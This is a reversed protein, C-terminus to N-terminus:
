KLGGMFENQMYNILEEAGTLGRKNQLISRIGKIWEKGRIKCNNKYQCPQCAEKKCEGSYQGNFFNQSASEWENRYVHAQSELRDARKHKLLTLLKTFDFRDNSKLSLDITHELDEFEFEQFRPFVDKAVASTINLLKMHALESIKKVFQNETIM